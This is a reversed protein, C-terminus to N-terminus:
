SELLNRAPNGASDRYASWREYASEWIARKDENSSKGQDLWSHCLWCGPVTYRDDAKRGGGKGYDSWNAHCPVVTATDGCCVGPVLLYCEQDRCADTIAKDHWARKKRAKAKFPTRRM